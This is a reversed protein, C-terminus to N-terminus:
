SLLHKIRISLERIERAIGSSARQEIGMRLIALSSMSSSAMM